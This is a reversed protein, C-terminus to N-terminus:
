KSRSDLEAVAKVRGWSVVRCNDSNLMAAPCNVSPEWCQFRSVPWGVVPLSSGSDGRGRMEAKQNAQADNKGSM